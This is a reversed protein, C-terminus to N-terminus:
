GITIGGQGAGARCTVVGQQQAATLVGVQVGCINAAATVPVVVTNGNLLIVNIGGVVQASAPMATLTVMLAAVVLLAIIRKM